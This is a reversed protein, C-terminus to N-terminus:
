EAREVEGRDFLSEERHRRRLNEGQELLVVKLREDKHADLHTTERAWDIYIIVQLTVVYDCTHTSCDM